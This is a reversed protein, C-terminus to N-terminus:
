ATATAAQQQAAAAAARERAPLSRANERECLVDGPQCVRCLKCSLRCNGRMQDNGRM